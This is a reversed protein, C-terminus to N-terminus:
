YLENEKQEIERKVQKLIEGKKYIVEEEIHSFRKNLGRIIKRIM